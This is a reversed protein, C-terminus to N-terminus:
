KHNDVGPSKGQHMPSQVEQDVRNGEEANRSKFRDAVRSFFGKDSPAAESSDRDKKAEENYKTLADQYKKPDLVKLGEGAKHHAERSEREIYERDYGQDHFWKFFERKKNNLGQRRTISANVSDSLSNEYMFNRESYIWEGLTLDDRPEVKKSLVGRDVSIAAKVVEYYPDLMGDPGNREFAGSIVEVLNLRNDDRCRAFFAKAVQGSEDKEAYTKIVNFTQDNFRGTFGSVLQASLEKDALYFSDAVANEAYIIGEKKVLLKLAINRDLPKVELSLLDTNRTGCLQNVYASLQQQDNEEIFKLVNDKKDYAIRSIVEALKENSMEQEQPM